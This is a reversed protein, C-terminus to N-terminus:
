VEIETYVLIYKKCLKELEAEDQRKREFAV